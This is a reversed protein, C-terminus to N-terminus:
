MSAEMGCLKKPVSSSMGERVLAFRSAVVRGHGLTPWPLCWQLHVLLHHISPLKTPKFDLPTGCFKGGVYRQISAHSKSSIPQICHHPGYFNDIPDYMSVLIAWIDLLQAELTAVYWWSWSKDHSMMVDESVYLGRLYAGAMLLNSQHWIGHTTSRKGSCPPLMLLPTACQGQAVRGKDDEARPRSDISVFCCIGLNKWINPLQWGDSLITTRYLNVRRLIKCSPTSSQVVPAPVGEWSGWLVQNSRRNHSGSLVHRTCVAAHGSQVFVWSSDQPWNTPWVRKCDWRAFFLEGNISQLNLGFYSMSMSTWAALALLGACMISLKEYQNPSQIFNNIRKKTYPYLTRTKGMEVWMDECVIM